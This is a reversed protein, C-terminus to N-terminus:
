CQVLAVRASSKPSPYIMLSAPESEAFKPLPAVAEPV